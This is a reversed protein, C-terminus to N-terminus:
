IESCWGQTPSVHGCEKKGEKEDRDTQRVARDGRGKIVSPDLIIQVKERERERIDTAM